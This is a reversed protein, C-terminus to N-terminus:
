ESRAANGGAGCRKGARSDLGLRSGNEIADGSERLVAMLNTRKTQKNAIRLLM